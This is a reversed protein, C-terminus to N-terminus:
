ARQTTAMRAMMKPTIRGSTIDATVRRRAARVPAPGLRTTSRHRGGCGGVVGVLRSREVCPGGGVVCGCCDAKLSWDLASIGAPGWWPSGATFRDSVTIAATLATPRIASVAQLEFLPEDDEDLASAGGKRHLALRDFQDNRGRGPGAVVDEGADDRGAQLFLEAGVDLHDVLLAAALDDAQGVDGFRVPLPIVSPNVLM